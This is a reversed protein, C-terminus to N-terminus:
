IFNELRRIAQLREKSGLKANDLASRLIENGEDYAAREVPFPTGDKGGRAFSFQAPDRWSPETGYILRSTLALARVTKPGVGQFALLEEYNRPQFEHLDMLKSFVSRDIWHHQHMLLYKAAKEPNDKVLDLSCKRAEASELAVMNLAKGRHDCCIATHPEVVFSQLHESLWHYRRAYRNDNNMGQQIVCWNGKEDLVFNHHYLQYGDQVASSDVKAAMRSSYKLFETEEESLPFILSTREIEDPTKRSAGGKGGLVAVGLKEPDIAEKLAGMTTTTVGSSHWDFGLVCGLSQFFYPNSLRRVFEETGYEYVIAETILGALAKMRKFLWPPCRGPHLPLDAVGVRQGM